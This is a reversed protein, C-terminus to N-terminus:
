VRIIDIGKGKGKGVKLKLYMCGKEEDTKGPSWYQRFTLTLRFSGEESFIGVNRKISPNNHNDPHQEWNNPNVGPGSVLRFIWTWNAM